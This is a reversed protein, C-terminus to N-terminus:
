GRGDWGRILVVKCLRRRPANLAVAGVAPILGRRAVAAVVRVVAVDKGVARHLQNLLVVLGAGEEEVM